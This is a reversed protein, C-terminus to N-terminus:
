APDLRDERRGLLYRALPVHMALPQLAIDQVDLLTEPARRDGQRTGVRIEDALQERELYGFDGGPSDLDGRDRALCTVPRLDRHDRPLWADVRLAGADARHAAPDAVDHGLQVPLLDVD